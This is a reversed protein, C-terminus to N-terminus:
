RETTVKIFYVPEIHRDLVSSVEWTGYLPSRWM